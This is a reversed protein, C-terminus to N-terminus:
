RMSNEWSQFHISDNGSLLHGLIINAQPGLLLWCYYLIELQYKIGFGCEKWHMVSLKERYILHLLYFTKLFFIDVWDKLFKALIKLFEIIGTLSVAPFVLLIELSYGLRWCDLWAPRVLLPITAITLMVIVITVLAQFVNWGNDKLDETFRLPTVMGM